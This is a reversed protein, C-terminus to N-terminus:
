RAASVDDPPALHDGAFRVPEREQERADDATTDCGHGLGGFSNKGFGEAQIYISAGLEGGLYKRAKIVGTIRM